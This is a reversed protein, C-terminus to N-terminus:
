SSAKRCEAFPKMPDLVPMFGVRGALRTRVRVNSLGRLGLVLFSLVYPLFKPGLGVLGQLLEQADRSHFEEPLRVDLVLLTMAVGFIADSLADLRV